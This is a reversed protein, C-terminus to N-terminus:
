RLSVFRIGFNTTNDRKNHRVPKVAAHPTAKGPAAPVEAAAGRARESEGPLAVTTAVSCSCNVARMLPVEFGATAQDALAPFMELLPNKV